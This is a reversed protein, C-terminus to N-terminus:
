GCAEQDLSIAGHDDTCVVQAELGKWGPVLAVDDKSVAQCANTILNTLVQTLKDRDGDVIPEVAQCRFNIKRRESAPVETLREVRSSTLADLEVRERNMMQPKAFLLIENLRAQLRNPFFCVSGDLVEKCPTGDLEYEVDELFRGGDIFALAKVRSRDMALCETVFAVRENMVRSLQLVLEQFSNEGVAAATATAVERLRLEARERKQVEQQLGRILRANKLSIAAQAALVEVLALRDPTFADNVQDNELYILGEMEAQNLVPACIISKIQRNAVDTDAVPREDQSADGVLLSRRTHRVYNLAKEAVGDKWDRHDLREVM